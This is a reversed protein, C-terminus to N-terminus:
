VNEIEKTLRKEKITIKDHLVYDDKKKNENTSISIGIDENIEKEVDATSNENNENKKNQNNNSNNSDELKLENESINKLKEANKLEEQIESEVEDDEEILRNNFNFGGIRDNFISNFIMDDLIDDLSNFFRIPAALGRNKNMNSKKTTKIYTDPKGDNFTEKVETTETGDKNYTTITQKSGEPSRMFTIKRMTPQFFSNMPDILPNNNMPILDNESENIKNNDENIDEEVDDDGFPDRMLTDFLHNIPNFKMPVVRIFPFNDRLEEDVNSKSSLFIEIFSIIILIHFIGDIKM